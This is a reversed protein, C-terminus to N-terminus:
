GKEAEYNGIPRDDVVHGCSVAVVGEAEEEENEESKKLSGRVLVV